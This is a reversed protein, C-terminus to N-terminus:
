RRGKVLFAPPMKFPFNENTFLLYVSEYLVVFSLFFSVGCSIFSSLRSVPTAFNANLRYHPITYPISFYFFFFLAVFYFFLFFNWVETVSSYYIM